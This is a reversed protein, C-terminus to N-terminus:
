NAFTGYRNGGGLVAESSSEAEQTNKGATQIWSVMEKM